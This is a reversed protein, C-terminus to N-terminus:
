GWLCITQQWVLMELPTNMNSGSAGRQWYWHLIWICARVCHCHAKRPLQSTRQSLQSSSPPILKINPLVCMQHSLQDTHPHTSVSLLYDWTNQSWAATQSSSHMRVTQPYRHAETFQQGRNVKRYKTVVSPKIKRRCNLLEYQTLFIKHSNLFVCHHERVSNGWQQGHATSCKRHTTSIKLKNNM